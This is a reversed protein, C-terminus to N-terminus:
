GQIYMYLKGNLSNIKISFIAEIQFQSISEVNLAEYRKRNVVDCCFSSALSKM